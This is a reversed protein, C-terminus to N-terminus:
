NPRRKKELFPFVDFESESEPFLHNTRLLNFLEMKNKVGLKLFIHSTHSKVTRTGIGEALAIEKVSGGRVLRGLVAQEKPSLGREALILSPKPIQKGMFVYGILDKDEDRLATLKSDLCVRPLDKLSTTFSFRRIEGSTIEEMARELGATLDFCDAFTERRKEQGAPKMSNRASTNRYLLRFDSSFVLIAEDVNELIERTFNSPTWSLFRYRVVAYAIGTIWFVSFLPSVVYPRYNTLLPLLFPEINYLVITGLISLIIIDAMRREKRGPAKRKSLHILLAAALYYALYNAILALFIPSGYDPVGTWFSGIKEFDRFVIHDTLSIYFFWCSPLYFAFALARLLRGSDPLAYTIAFHLTYAHLFLFGFSSVRFWSLLAEKTGASYGFAAGLLWVSICLTMFFYRRNLASSPRILLLFLGEGLAITAVFISAATLFLM